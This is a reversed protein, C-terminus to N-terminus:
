IRPPPGKIVASGRPALVNGLLVLVVGAIAASTWEFDEFLSSLGLAIIPFLVSAYGARDAGIRGFLSVEPAVMGLQNNIALWSSGWILVTAAYIAAYLPFNTM